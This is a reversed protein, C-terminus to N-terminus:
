CRDYHGYYRIYYYGYDYDHGGSLCVSLDEACFIYKYTNNYVYIGAEVRGTAYTSDQLYCGHRPFTLDEPGISEDSLIIVCLEGTCRYEDEHYMEILYCNITPM